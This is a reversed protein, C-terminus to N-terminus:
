DQISTEYVREFTGRVHSQWITAGIQEGTERDFCRYRTMMGEMYPMMEFRYKNPNIQELFRFGKIEWQPTRKRHHYLIEDRVTM